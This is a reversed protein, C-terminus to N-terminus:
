LQWDVAILALTKSPLPEIMADVVQDSLGTRKRLEAAVASRITGQLSGKGPAKVKRKGPRPKKARVAGAEVLRRLGDAKGKSTHEGLGYAVLLEDMQPRSLRKARTYGLVPLDKPKPKREGNQKNVTMDVKKPM